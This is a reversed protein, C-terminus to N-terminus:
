TWLAWRVDILRKLMKDDEAYQSECLVDRSENQEKRKKWWSLLTEIETKANQHKKDANWNTHGTLLEEKEICDVLLQFCAHLMVEDKDCWEETLSDIKLLNSPRM